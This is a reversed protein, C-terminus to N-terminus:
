CNGMIESNPCRGYQWPQRLMAALIMGFATPRAHEVPHNITSTPNLPAKITTEIKSLRHNGNPAAKATRPPPPPNNITVTPVIPRQQGPSLGKRTTTPSIPQTQPQLSPVLIGQRGLSIRSRLKLSVKSTTEIKSM